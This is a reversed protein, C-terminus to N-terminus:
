KKRPVLLGASTEVWDDERDPKLSDLDVVEATIDIIKGMRSLMLQNILLSDVQFMDALDEGAAEIFAEYPKVTQHFIGTANHYAENATNTSRASIYRRTLGSKVFIDLDKQNTCTRRIENCIFQVNFWYIARNLHSILAEFKTRAEHNILWEDRLLKRNLETVLDDKTVTLKPDAVLADRILLFFQLSSIAKERDYVRSVIESFHTDPLMEDLEERTLPRDSLTCSRSLLEYRLEIDDDYRNVIENVIPWLPGATLPYDQSLDIVEWEHYDASVM